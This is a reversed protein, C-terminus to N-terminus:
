PKSSIPKIAQQHQQRDKELKLQKKASDANRKLSAIRSQQPTLPKVPKITQIEYIRM